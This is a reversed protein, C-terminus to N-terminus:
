IVKEDELEGIVRALAPRTVGFLEALAQHSLPLEIMNKDHGALKILYQILKGRITKFSLFRIKESLFQARGSIANLYNHLIQQDLQMLKLFEVKPIYLLKLDKKSITEYEREWYM